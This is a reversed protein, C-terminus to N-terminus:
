SDYMGRESVEIKTRRKYRGNMLQKTNIGTYTTM